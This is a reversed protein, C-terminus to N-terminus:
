ILNGEMSLTKRGALRLLGLPSNGSSSQAHAGQHDGVRGRAGLFKIKM